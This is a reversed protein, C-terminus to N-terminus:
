QCGKSVSCLDHALCNMCATCLCCLFHCPTLILDSNSVIASFSQSFLGKEYYALDTGFFQQTELSASHKWPLLDTVLKVFTAKCLYSSAPSTPDTRSQPDGCEFPEPFSILVKQHPRSRLGKRSTDAKFM